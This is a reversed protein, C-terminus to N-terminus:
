ALAAAAAQLARARPEGIARHTAHIARAEALAKRAAPLAHVQAQARALAVLVDALALSRAPDLMDRRLAEARRLPALAAQADGLRLLASGLAFAAKSEAERLYPREASAEIGALAAEAETRALGDQGASVALWAREAQRLFPAAPDAGPPPPRGDFDKLADAARGEAVWLHRRAISLTNTLGFKSDGILSSAQAFAADADALRGLDLLADTRLAQVFGQQEPPVERSGSRAALFALAEDFIALGEEPQGYVTLLRGLSALMSAPYQGIPGDVKLRRIWQAVPQLTAIGEVYRGNLYESNAMKNALIYADEEQGVGARSLAVAKAFTAEADRRQGARTQMEALKALLMPQENRGLEPQREILALAEKVAAQADANRGLRILIDALVQSSLVLQQRDGLARAATVARQAYVLAKPQDTRWWADAMAADVALRARSTDGRMASVAADAKALLAQEDRRQDILGLLGALHTMADVAEFSAEGHREIALAMRRRDLAIAKEHLTMQTYMDALTGYLRLRAEPAAALEKDIREAGRDLLEQATTQRAKKADLQNGSSALFVSELFNQVAKASAAEERALGAQARAERAQWLAASTGAVLALVVAVGAGVQLRHRAVFKSARYGLRDPRAEVPAGELWRRLDQAFAQVTLYRDAPAKKLAKNLIADLDGRLVRAVRRDAARDSALVPDVGAIAEELEAATARTLRYPRADALLEYAVVGLSYVDSATGLPQGRIQEPSAYDLTLARGALETLATPQASDDVLLKAIGFDLLKVSADPTVLINGPKLDRHVVLRAHAHSVADMVQLLLAVRDRISPSRARVYADLPDGEVYEMALFPRGHADIGADYLRAIHDHQLTSLIDRERALREAFADGWVARPLKLAVRRNMLRDAREALWVTGMGGQGIQEILRYAGVSDGAAPGSGSPGADAVPLRPLHELFDNTEIAERHALLSRLAERHRSRTDDLRELWPEREPPPLSLAEDLLASIAPWHEAFQSISTM